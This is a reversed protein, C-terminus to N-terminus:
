GQVSKKLIKAADHTHIRHGEDMWGMLLFLCAKM